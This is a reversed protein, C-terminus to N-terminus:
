RTVGPADVGRTNMDQGDARGFWEVAALAAAKVAATVATSTITSATIAAVDNAVEFPDGAKKGAFQSYFTIGRARDVFYSPSAANAGLGPTDQHEMIKVGAIVGDIGVGALIKIPGGYSARSLRLVAGAPRTNKIAAYGSEIAVSPDPSKFDTVETFSDADPFLEKLAAELDAAQRQAIIKKTGTYVFALMVCAAAAFLALTLGLKLMGSFGSHEKM